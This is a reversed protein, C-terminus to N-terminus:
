ALRQLIVVISCLDAEKCAIDDVETMLNNPARRKDLDQEYIAWGLFKCTMHVDTVVPFARM